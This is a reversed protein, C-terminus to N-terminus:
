SFRPPQWFDMATGSPLIEMSQPAFVIPPPYSTAESFLVSKSPLWAHVCCSCCQFPNGENACSDDHRTEATADDCVSGSSCCVPEDSCCADGQGAAFLPQVTAMCCALLVIFLGFWQMMKRMFLVEAVFICAKGRFNM